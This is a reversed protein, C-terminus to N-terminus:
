LGMRRDAEARDITHTPVVLWDPRRLRRAARAAAAESFVGFVASGSGTMSAGLAGERLCAEVADGVGAQRRAVPAELDNALALPGSAWGLGIAAGPRGAAAEGAARDADLWGYADATRVAFAPKIIVLGLRSADELPYVEDGRGMGIATGGVLFFPVDAGLGSAVRALDHRPLGLGWIRNLAVLTAAADASGGGLGAGVPIVKELKVHVDRPDGARGAARWLAAAARWVLNDADATVGPARAALAFPGSRPTYTVTDSLAITQLVTRVDHFGDAQRPGVRLMLNIKAPPRLTLARAMAM